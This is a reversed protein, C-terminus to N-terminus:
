ERRNWILWKLPKKRKFNIRNELDIDMQAKSKHGINNNNNMSINVDANFASADYNDGDVIVGGKMRTIGAKEKFCSWVIFLAIFTFVIYAVIAIYAVKIDTDGVTVDFGM